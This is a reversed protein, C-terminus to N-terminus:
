GARSAFVQFSELLEVGAADAFFYGTVSCVGSVQQQGDRMRGAKGCVAVGALLATVSAFLTIEKTGVHIESEMLLRVLSGFAFSLGIVLTNAM